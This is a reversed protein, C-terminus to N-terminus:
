PQFSRQIQNMTDPTVSVPGGLVYAEEVLLRSTFLYNDTTAPLADPQTLIIPSGRLGMFAGGTLADPLKATVGVNHPQTWPTPAFEAQNAIETATDYRDAGWWRQVSAGGAALATLVDDSVTAPGGGVVRSNIALDNLVNRTASPIGDREVLLIPYGNRAALPSLALADFFKDADAGNAILAFQQHGATRNWGTPREANMRRAISAALTYRDSYPGVREFTAGPV